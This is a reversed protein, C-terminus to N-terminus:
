TRAVSTALARRLVIAARRLLRLPDRDAPSRGATWWAAIERAAVAAARAAPYGYIGTSIAPFAVSSAGAEEALALSTRYCSALTEPEAHDGGAWM